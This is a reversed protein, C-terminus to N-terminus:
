CISPAQDDQRKGEALCPAGQPCVRLLTPTGVEGWLGQTGERWRLLGRWLVPNVTIIRRPFPTPLAGLVTSVDQAQPWNEAGGAM